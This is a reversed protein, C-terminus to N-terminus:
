VQLRDMLQGVRTGLKKRRCDTDHLSKLSTSGNVGDSALMEGMGDVSSGPATSHIKRCARNPPDLDDVVAWFKENAVIVDLSELVPACETVDCRPRVDGQDTRLSAPPEVSSGVFPAAVAEEPFNREMKAQSM